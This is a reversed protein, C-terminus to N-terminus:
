KDCERCAIGTRLMDRLVDKFTPFDPSNSCRCIFGSTNAPCKDQDETDSCHGHGCSLCECLQECDMSEVHPFSLSELLAFDFSGPHLTSLQVGAIETINNGDYREHLCTEEDGSCEGFTWHIAEL